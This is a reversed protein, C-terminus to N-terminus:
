QKYGAAAQYIHKSFRLRSCADYKRSASGLKLLFGKRAKPHSMLISHLDSILSPICASCADRQRRELKARQESPRAQHRGPQRPGEAADHVGDDGVGPQAVEEVELAEDEPQLYSRLRTNRSDFPGPSTVKSNQLTKLAPDSALVVNSTLQLIGRLGACVLEKM